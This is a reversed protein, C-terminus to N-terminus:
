IGLIFPFILDAFKKVVDETANTNKERREKELKDALQNLITYVEELAEGESLSDIYEKFDRIARESPSPQQEEFRQRSEMHNLDMQLEGVLTRLEEGAAKMCECVVIVGYEEKFACRGKDNLRKYVEADLSFQRLSDTICAVLVRPNKMADGPLTISYNLEPYKSVPIRTLKLLHFNDSYAYKWGCNNLIELFKDM